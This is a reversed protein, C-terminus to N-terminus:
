LSLSIGIMGNIGPMPYGPQYEYSVDTLNEGAIFVEGDAAKAELPLQYSLKANVITYSSVQSRADRAAGARRAQSGTYMSSLHQGDVSLQFCTLFQWNLGASVTTEPAYPLDGPDSDLLTLGAFLALEDTPRYSITTEAGQTRYSEVNDFVPPPPPPVVVVYRDRGEDRFLTLDAALRDRTHSIGIEYHDLTEASLDQWSDGLAPNVHTALILAELGPYIVGRAYGFHLETHDYGLVLGAHPSAEADYRNHDYYRLGASPILYAGTKDGWQQSVATYPSTIRYTDGDFRNGSPGGDGQIADYDAGLVWEGGHWLTLEERGKVGWYDFNWTADPRGDPRRLQQGKGQNGYVQYRGSALDHEHELKLSGLLAETAYNGEREMPDAGKVGPDWAHNDSYLGFASLYWHDDLAYGLRAFYNALEGASKERHGDSTRFSQGLYYDMAGVKGAHEARQVWTADSGGALHLDTRFGDEVQRKPLITIAGFANGFRNPQPSKYVEISRATDISLLDLLPHNWVGMYMPVGDIFTKIEAGPRSSGMGRIFVGGGEAGGFSGVPNYRSITVGPTRRLSTALDQANLSRIQQGTVVSASAGYRDVRNGDIIPTATVVLPDMVILEEEAVTVGTWGLLLVWVVAWGSVNGLLRM